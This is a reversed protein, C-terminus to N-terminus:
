RPGLAKAIETGPTDRGFSTLPTQWLDGIGTSEGVGIIDPHASLMREVLSTGSRPMGIIFIMRDDPGAEDRRELLFEPTIIEAPPDALALDGNSNAGLTAAKRQAM